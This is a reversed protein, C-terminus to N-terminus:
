NEWVPLPCRLTPYKNKMYEASVKQESASKAGIHQGASDGHPWYKLYIFLLKKYWHLHSLQTVVSPIIRLKKEM